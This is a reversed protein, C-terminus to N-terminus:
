CQLGPNRRREERHDDADRPLFDARRFQAAHDDGAPQCRRTHSVATLTVFYLRVVATYWNTGTHCASLASIDYANGDIIVKGQLEAPCDGHV